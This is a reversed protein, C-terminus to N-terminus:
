RWDRRDDLWPADKGTLAGPPEVQVACAVRTVARVSQAVGEPDLQQGPPPEVRILMQDRHQGDRQVVTQWRGTGPANDLVEALQHRYVFMGRVKVGDTARGLWGRIRPPPLGCPCPEPLLASLDGTGFRLLPYTQDLLTCVVEGTEGLPLPRGTEPDCIEVLVGSDLHMGAAAACEYGVLGLDATGYSQRVTVGLEQLRARLSPPLPEATVLAKELALTIPTAAAKELLALLYSPLGVYGRAGTAALVQLQLDQQGVGGPIVVCGLTRLAADFMFGAPSLHYSFCNLVVDGAAFGAATLATAFRWYDQSPGQPDYVPGPSVFIRQLQEVPQGLLGGFPPAAAQAAPLDVKRLVPLRALDAPGSIVGDGLGAGALRARQVPSHTWAHRVLAALRAQAGPALWVSLGDPANGDSAKM